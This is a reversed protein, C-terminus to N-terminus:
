QSGLLGPLEALSGIREAWEPAGGKGARDLWVFRMGAGKAGIGDTELKDGVFLAESASVGLLKLSGDFIRRDPKDSGFTDAGVIADFYEKELGAQGIVTDLETESGNSVIALRLGSKRLREMTTITDGYLSFSMIDFWRKHIERAYFPIDGGIGLRRMVQSDWDIWFRDFSEKTQHVGRLQFDLRTEELAMYIDDPAKAGIGLMEFLANFVEHEAKDCRLLTNGLDFLVARETLEIAGVSKL